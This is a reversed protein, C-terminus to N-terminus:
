RMHRLIHGSQAQHFELAKKAEGVTFVDDCAGQKKDSPFIMLKVSM